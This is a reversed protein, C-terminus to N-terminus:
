AQGRCGRRRQSGGSALHCGGSVFSKRCGPRSSRIRSSWTTSAGQAAEVGARRPAQLGHGARDAGPQRAGSGPWARPLSSGAVADDLAPAPMGGGQGEPCALSVLWARAPVTIAPEKGPRPSDDLLTVVGFRSARALLAPGDPASVGVARGVAYCSPDDRYRARDPRAGRPEIVRDAVPRDISAQGVGREGIPLEVVKRTAAM